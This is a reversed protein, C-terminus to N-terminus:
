TTDSQMCWEYQDVYIYTVLNLISTSASTQCSESTWSPTLRQILTSFPLAKISSGKSQRRYQTEKIKTRWDCPLLWGESEAHVQKPKERECSLSTNKNTSCSIICNIIIPYYFPFFSLWFQSVWMVFMFVAPPFFNMQQIMKSQKISFGSTGLFHLTRLNM